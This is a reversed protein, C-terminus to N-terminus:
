GDLASEAVPSQAPLAPTVTTGPMQRLYVIDGVSLELQQAHARTLQVTV